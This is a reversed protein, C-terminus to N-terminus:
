NRIRWSMNEVLIRSRAGEIDPAGDPWGGPRPGSSFHPDEHVGQAAVSMRLVRNEPDFQFWLGAIRRALVRTRDPTSQPPTEYIEQVLDGNVVRLRAARVVHVEELGYLSGGFLVENHLAGPTVAVEAGDDGNSRVWLPVGLSPFTLWMNGAVNSLGGGSVSKLLLIDGTWFGADQSLAQYNTFDSFSNGPKRMGADSGVIRIDSSLIEGLPMSWAYYLEPGSYNGDADTETIRGSSGSIDGSAVTLPGGWDQGATGMLSMVSSAPENGDGAFASSFLGEGGRNNPMGLGVNAFQASLTQFVKEIGERSVAYDETQNYSNWFSLFAATVAGSAIGVVIMALLIEVLTYAQRRTTKKMKM